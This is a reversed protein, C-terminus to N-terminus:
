LCRRRRGSPSQRARGTSQDAIVLCRIAAAADGGAESARAIHTPRFIMASLFLGPLAIGAYSIVNAVLALGAPQRGGFGLFLWGARDSHRLPSGGVLAIHRLLALQRRWGRLGVGAHHIM